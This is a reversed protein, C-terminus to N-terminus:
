NNTPEIEGVFHPSGEHDDLLEQLEQASRKRGVSIGDHPGDGVINFKRANDDTRKEFYYQLERLESIPVVDAEEIAESQLVLSEYYDEDIYNGAEEHQYMGDTLGISTREWADPNFHLPDVHRLNSM